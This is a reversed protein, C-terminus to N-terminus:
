LLMSPSFFLGESCLLVKLFGASVSASITNCTTRRLRFISGAPGYRAIRSSHLQMPGRLWWPAGLRALEAGGIGSRSHM